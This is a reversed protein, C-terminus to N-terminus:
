RLPYENPRLLEKDFVIWCPYSALSFHVYANAEWSPYLPHM